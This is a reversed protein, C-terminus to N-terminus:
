HVLMKCKDQSHLTDVDMGCGKDSPRGTCNKYNSDMIELCQPWLAAHSWKSCHHAGFLASGCREQRRESLDVLLSHCVTRESPSWLHLFPPQQVILICRGHFTNTKEGEKRELRTTCFPPWFSPRFFSSLMNHITFNYMWDLLAVCIVCSFVILRASGLRAGSSRVQKYSLGCKPIM